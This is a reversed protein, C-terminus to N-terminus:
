ADLQGTAQEERFASPMLEINHRAAVANVKMGNAAAHNLVTTETHGKGEVAVKGPRLAQVQPERLKNESSRVLITSQGDAITASAYHVHEGVRAKGFAWEIIPYRLVYLADIISKIQIEGLRHTTRKIALPCDLYISENIGSCVSWINKIAFSQENRRRLKCWLM